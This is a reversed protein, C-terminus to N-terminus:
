YCKIASFIEASMERMLNKLDSKVRWKEYIIMVMKIMEQQRTPNRKAWQGFGTMKEWQISTKKAHSVIIFM